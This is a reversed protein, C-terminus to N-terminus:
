DKSDIVKLTLRSVYQFHKYLNEDRLKAYRSNLTGCKLLVDIEWWCKIKMQFLFSYWLWVLKFNLVIHACIIANM